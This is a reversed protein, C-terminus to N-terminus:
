QAVIHMKKSNFYSHRAILMTVFNYAYQVLVIGCAYFLREFPVIPMLAIFTAINMNFLYLWLVSGIAHATFTSGLAQLFINQKPSFYIVMPIFWYLSYFWAQGGVPHALFLIMSVFPILLRVYWTKSQLYASAGLTPMHLALILSKLSFSVSNFLLSRVFLSGAMLPLGVFSGFLPGFISLLPFFCSTIAM